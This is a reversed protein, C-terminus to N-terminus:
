RSGRPLSGLLEALADRDYFPLDRGGPIRDIAAYDLYPVQGTLWEVSCGYIDALRATTISRYPQQTYEVLNLEAVTVGFFRAAQVSSLGARERARIYRNKEGM